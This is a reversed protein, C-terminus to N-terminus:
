SNKPYLVEEVSSRSVYHYNNKAGDFVLKAWSLDDPNKTLAEYIPMLYKRRGVKQLFAKLEPRIDKYGSNIGLVFWESVIESNGWGKFNLEKDLKRMKEPDMKAPLQRIFAQWEQTIYTERKLKGGAFINEGKAFRDALKQVQEFRKSEIRVCNAPLGSEYLWEKTNFTLNNPDLLKENLYDEFEETTITKFAFEKFYQKLFVDFKKRGVANELTKLFFCGKVYAIDTMGEDPNREDIALKLHTDEPHDGSMINKIEKELQQFEILSLMDSTEKGYIEEMIRSEFYVTFVENLWFDNWTANTVLNGSWSHALEHAIVSTLSRDGAILTPNAFTLRPNEMGGFPFSYPLVIVDYEEWQYEGYLKEAATIMKPLDGLEYASAKILSPEAYVGCKKGLKRYELDGVALAILYCPIPQMMEFHYKGEANKEKPNDASMLALLEAPVKVDASYTIRNAPTGQIPIWTRTLIAQGQTYMFPQKKNETLEPALWDLAETKDTTQYYINVYKTNPKVVVSLPQGLIEHMEGIVYETETEKDKGLTVKQINLAKIDFVATDTGFNEMEHRAVGYIIKKNFDVDLDLHLHKTHIESINAYSHADDVKRAHVKQKADSKQETPTESNCSVLAILLFQSIAFLKNMQYFSNYGRM